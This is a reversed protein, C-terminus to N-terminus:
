GRDYEEDQDIQDLPFQPVFPQDYYLQRLSEPCDVKFPLGIDEIFDENNM